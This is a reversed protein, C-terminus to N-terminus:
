GGDAFDREMAALLTETTEMRCYGGFARLAAPPPRAHRDRLRRSVCIM